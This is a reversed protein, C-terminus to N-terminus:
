TKSLAIKMLCARREFKYQEFLSEKLSQALKGKVYEDYKLGHLRFFIASPLFSIHMERLGRRLEKLTTDTILDYLWAERHPKLVRYIENFVKLPYKLHHIVGSSVVLDFYCDEFRLAYASGLEFRVASQVGERKTAGRAIKILVKSIDIGIIELNPARKAIEVPLNGSGTGVDLVRGQDIKSVIEKALAEYFGKRTKTSLYFIYAGPAPIGKIMANKSINYFLNPTIDKTVTAWFTKVHGAYGAIILLTLSDLLFKQM